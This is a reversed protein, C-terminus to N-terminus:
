CHSPSFFAVIKSKKFQVCDSPILHSTNENGTPDISSDIAGLVDPLQAISFFVFRHKIENLGDLDNLPQIHTQAHHLLSRLITLRLAFSGSQSMGAVSVVPKKEKRKKPPPPMRLGFVSPHCLFPQLAREHNQVAYRKRKYKNWINM